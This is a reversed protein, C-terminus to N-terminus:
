GNLPGYLVLVNGDPDRLTARHEHGGTSVDGIAAGAARLSEAAQEVDPVKLGVAALGPVPQEGAAALAITTGGGDLAAYRDGDQFRVKLGLTDRYFALARELDGVPLLIHGVKM